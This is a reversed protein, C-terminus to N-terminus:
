DAGKSYRSTSLIRETTWGLNIRNRITSRPIGLKKSWHPISLTDDGLTIKKDYHSPHKSKQSLAKELPWGNKLRYSLASGRIGLRAAWQEMCLTEGNFTINVNNRKNRQQDSISLWRINGPEYNGENRIRDLTAREPRRGLATLAESFKSFDHWDPHVTIGRGGWYEYGTDNKSYCRKMMSVWTKYAPTRKGQKAQGHKYNWKTFHASRGIGTSATM